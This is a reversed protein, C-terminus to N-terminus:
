WRTVAGNLVPMQYQVDLFGDSKLGVENTQIIGDDRKDNAVANYVTEPVRQGWQSVVETEGTEENLIPLSLTNGDPDIAEVVLYYNTADTNIEPFTWFGSQEDARNVVRVVYEQRLKDRLETLDQVIGEAGPRNGEAAFAKGRSVLAEAQVVAQQVKTEEFITNFLADMQAPLGETLELQSQQAQGAQFPRWVGYYGIGLVLVAGLALLLPRGWKKRSVYLKALSTNFGPPPPDYVFRSEALASVGEKLIHDPVEIGQQRYVERLREILQGERATGDLERTVLDQRHRLTDVVDMALMVEDLPAAKKATADSM